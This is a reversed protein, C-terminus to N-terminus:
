QRIIMGAAFGGVEIQREIIGSATMIGYVIGPVAETGELPHHLNEGGAQNECSVFARTGDATFAVAHPQSVVGNITRTVQRSAVNIISVTNSGQNPTWFESGDPSLAGILPKIGVKISDIVRDTALDVVRVEGSKRCTVFMLGNDTIEGQYPEHQQGGAPAAPTGPVIPIRAVVEDTTLDIKSIDDSGANMTYLFREDRSLTVGHPAYGEVEINKIATMSQADVQTIFQQQLTEDFNSVYLTSGDATVRIQAPSLGVEVQGLKEFTRADFKEVVGAVILNVYFFRKDPSLAINHPAEPPSTANPRSGAQIYRAVYETQVDIVSVLDETQCTVFLRPREEGALPVDGNDNKAGEDIWRKIAKIQELPLPDRGLPMRLDTVVPGLTSDTNIHQFLHSRAGSYPVVVGGFESGAVLDSWSDLALGSENEGGIHCGSGACSNLFIPEIHKSYIIEEGNTPLVIPPPSVTDESCGILLALGSVFCAFAVIQSRM